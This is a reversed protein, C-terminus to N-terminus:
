WSGFLQDSWYELEAELKAKLQLDDQDIASLILEIQEIKLWIIDPTIVNYNTM